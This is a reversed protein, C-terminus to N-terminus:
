FINWAFKIIYFFIAFSLVILISYVIHRCRNSNRIQNVAEITNTQSQKLGVKTSQLSDYIKDITSRTHDVNTAIIAVLNENESMSQRLRVLTDQARLDGYPQQRLDVDRVKVSQHGTYLNRERAQDLIQEMKPNFNEYLESAFYILQQSAVQYDLSDVSSSSWLQHLMEIQNVMLQNLNKLEVLCDFTKQSITGPDLQVYSLSALRLQTVRTCSELSQMTERIAQCLSILQNPDLSAASQGSSTKQNM